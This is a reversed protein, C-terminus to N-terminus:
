YKLDNKNTEVQNLKLAQLVSIHSPTANDAHQLDSAYFDKQKGKASKVADGNNKILIYRKRELLGRRPVIVRSVTYIDPSYTVVIQKTKNEKILKRVNQFIASMKLRVRDGVAYNDEHEYRQIQAVARKLISSKAIAPKNARTIIDPIDREDIPNKNAVWAEDPSTKISSNYNKNKSIQVDKLVDTWNLKKERLMFARILKRIDRNAREVIGNAEPAYARTFRQKINNERCYLSMEDKFETGNDSLLYTPSIGAEECISAFERAVQASGKIVLKRLWLKRSFADVVNLIYRFRGNDGGKGKYMEMDILDMCWLQNPYDAVIPKNTRKNINRTLQYNHQQKLFNEVDKRTINIYKTIIYKYLSVIGKGFASPDDRYLKELTLEVDTKKVVLLDLPRYILHGDPSVIFHKYKEKFYKKNTINPAINGTNLYHIVTAIVDDNPFLNNLRNM